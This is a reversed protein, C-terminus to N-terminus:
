EKKVVNLSTSNDDGSELPAFLCLSLLYGARINVSYVASTLNLVPLQAKSLKLNKVAGKGKLTTPGGTLSLFAYKRCVCFM